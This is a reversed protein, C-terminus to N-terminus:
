VFFIPNFCPVFIFIGSEEQLIMKNSVRRVPSQVRPNVSTSRKTNSVNKQVIGKTFKQVDANLQHLDDLFRLDSIKHDEFSNVINFKSDELKMKAETLKDYLSSLTTSKIVPKDSSHSAM